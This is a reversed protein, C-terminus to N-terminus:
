GIGPVVCRDPHLPHAGREGHRTTIRIVGGQGGTGYAWGGSAGRLLELTAVDSPRLDRLLRPGDAVEIGDLVVVPRSSGQLSRTRGVIAAAGGVQGPDGSVMEPAVRRLVETLNSAHHEDLDAATLFTGESRRKREDEGL